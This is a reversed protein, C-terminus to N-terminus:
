ILKDDEPTTGFTTGTQHMGRDDGTVTPVAGPSTTDTSPRGVPTETDGSPSEDYYGARDSMENGLDNPLGGQENKPENKPDTMPSNM